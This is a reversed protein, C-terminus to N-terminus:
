LSQGEPEKSDPGLVQVAQKDPQAFQVLVV